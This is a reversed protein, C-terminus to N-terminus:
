HSAEAIHADLTDEIKSTLAKIRAEEVIPRGNTSCIQFIDEVREGLTTIKSALLEIQEAEFVQALKALLGPRDATVVELDTYPQDPKNHITIQTKIAFQKLMRPTRRRSTVSPTQGSLARELARRIEDNRSPADIASLPNMELVDFIYDRRGQANSPIRADVVNLDMQEFATVIQLFSAQDPRAHIFIHTTGEDRNLRSTDEGILILPGDDLNHTNMSEAHWIMNSASERLFYDEGLGQWLLEVQDSEIDREKLKNIVSSKLQKLYDERDIMQDLGLRLVRKTELYLQSMLSAKWSNWLTPNTANIDAVTLAYLYDLRVQDGVLSAFERVVDPDFIDKRQATTSMILHHEVLWCVLNTEWQGLRHRECFNRAIEIGKTSHDGGMGKALDHFFGAIYLLEVKPLRQHIHAAIPFQQEQNKYRFRRMNRVVQLTHADVTYIHFLDFQMQGVVREFEPLYAGLIGLRNMRRLQSFLHHEVGLLRIFLETSAQSNRFGENINPAQSKALRSTESRIGKLTASEGLIVFMELLAEPHHHFLDPQKAALKQDIAQFRENIEMINSRRKLQPALVREEFAQLSVENISSVSLAFRYYDQMFQEVALQERDEYGLLDALQRQHDFLLRNEDRGRTLHLAFRIRWFFARAEELEEAERPEFFGRQVLTELDDTKLALKAIWLLTHIDRLAGPSTKINPELSYETHNSKAHRENQEELKAKYFDSVRWCKKRELRKELRDLLIPSGCLMRADLMSTMITVDNKAQTFADGLSRVSHGVELGIDWLLTTFSQINAAHKQLNDRESLILLDIDSHPMLERRGYGGVAVLAIRTKRWSSLNEDWSFRSWCLNILIDTFRCQRELMDAIPAGDRLAQEITTKHRVIASKLLGIPNKAELIAARDLWDDTDVAVASPTM